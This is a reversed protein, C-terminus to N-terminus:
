KKINLKKSTAVIIKVHKVIFTAHYTYHEHQLLFKQSRLSVVSTSKGYIEIQAGVYERYQLHKNQHQLQADLQFTGLPRGSM